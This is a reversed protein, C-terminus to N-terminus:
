RYDLFRSRGSEEAEPENQLIIDNRIYQIVTSCAIADSGLGHGLEIHVDKAKAKASLGKLHLFVVISRQDSGYQKVFSAGEPTLFLNM